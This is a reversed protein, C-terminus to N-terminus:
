NWHMLRRELRAFASTLAIGTLALLVVAAFLNPMNFTEASESILQGLGARSGFLEAVVVGILGRGIAIKLGAFIFPLSSPLSVKWFIQHRNADFSRVMEILQYSTARLGAETNLIVPFVALIFVVAVKSWIGIGMWLIFLPALAITPTAYLGVVWPELAARAAASTAMPVGLAIGVFAALIYGVFFELGSIAVDHLLRGETLHVISVVIQSPAALFLPNDIVFRSGIEWVLLGGLVSGISWRHSAVWRWISGIARQLKGFIRFSPRDSSASRAAQIAAPEGQRAETEAAVSTM